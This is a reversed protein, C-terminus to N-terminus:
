SRKTYEIIIVISGTEAVLDAGVQIFIKNSVYTTSQGFISISGSYSLSGYFAFPLIRKGPASPVTAKQNTFANVQVPTEIYDQPVMIEGAGTLTNPVEFVKRYIKKGDIWTKGTDQEATTYVRLKELEQRAVTDALDHSVDESDKLATVEGETNLTPVLMGARATKDEIPHVVGEIEMEFVTPEAM